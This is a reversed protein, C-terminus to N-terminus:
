RQSYLNIRYSFQEEVGTNQQTEPTLHKGVWNKYQRKGCRPMTTQTKNGLWMGVGGSEKVEHKIPFLPAGYTKTQTEQPNKLIGFHKGGLSSPTSYPQTHSTRFCIAPASYFYSHPKSAPPLCAYPNDEYSSSSIVHSAGNRNAGQYPTKTHFGFRLNM